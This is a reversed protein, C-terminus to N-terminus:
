ALDRGARGLRRRPRCRAPLPRGARARGPRPGRGVPAPGPARRRRRPRRATGGVLGRGGGRHSGPRPSRRHRPHVDGPPRPRLPPVRRRLRSPVDGADRLVMGMQLLGREQLAPRWSPRTPWTSTSRRRGSARGRRGPTADDACRPGRGRRDGRGPRPDGGVPGVLVDAAPPADVDVGVGVAAASRAPTLPDGRRARPRVGPAQARHGGAGRRLRVRRRRRLVRRGRGEVAAPLRRLIAAKDADAVEVATFPQSRRGLRLEGSARRGCTACGSPPAGPPSSTAVSRRARAPQGPHPPARRQASRAGRLVRSGWVSIGRRTLRAVSRNFVNRTFWGPEVYRPGDDAAPSSAALVAGALDTALQATAPATTATM